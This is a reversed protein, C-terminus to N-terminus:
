PPATQNSPGARSGPRRSVTASHSRSRVWRGPKEGKGCFSQQVEQSTPSVRACTPKFVAVNGPCLLQLTLIHWLIVLLHLTPLFPMNGNSNLVFYLDLYGPSTNSLPNCTPRHVSPHQNSEWDCCMGSNHALDRSPPMRSAISWHKM